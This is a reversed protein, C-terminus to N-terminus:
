TDRRGPTTPLTPRTPHLQHFAWSELKLVLEDAIAQAGNRKLVPGGTALNSRLSPRMTKLTVFLTYELQRMEDPEAGGVADRIGIESDVFEDSNKLMEVLPKLIEDAARDSVMPRKSAFARLREAPM